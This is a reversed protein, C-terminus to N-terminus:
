GMVETRRFGAEVGSNWLKMENIEIMEAIEFAEKVCKEADLFVETAMFRVPIYGNRILYRERKYDSERQEKTKHYEHGDIEVAVTNIVFDVKYIGVVCQPQVSFIDFVDQNGTLEQYADYFMEEIKNM